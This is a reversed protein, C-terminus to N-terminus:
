TGAKLARIIVAILDELTYFHGFLNTDTFLRSALHSKMSQILRGRGGADLYSHIAQPGAIGRPTGGADLEGPYFLVSGFTPTRQSGDAFTALVASGDDGVVAVTSNTTGFDLGVARHM